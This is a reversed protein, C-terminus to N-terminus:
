TAEKYAKINKELNGEFIRTGIVLEDAGLQSLTGALSPTIGGDLAIKYPSEDTSRIKILSEVKPKAADHFKQGGFGAPVSMVLIINCDLLFKKEITEVSTGIDFALGPYVGAETVNRIFQGIDTMMEVQGIIRDGGARVCKEVWNVPEDVMLHFDLLLNHELGNFVSPDITKNNAFVGDVIDVHLRKVVRNAKSVLRCAEQPNNTLIAPIIDM